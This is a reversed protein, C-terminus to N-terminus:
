RGARHDTDSAMRSEKGQYVYGLQEQQMQAKTKENVSEQCTLIEKWNKAENIVVAIQM